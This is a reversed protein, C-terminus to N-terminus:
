NALIEDATETLLEDYREAPLWADDIDADSVEIHQAIIWADEISLTGSPTPLEATEFFEAAATKGRARLEEAIQRAGREKEFFEKRTELAKRESEATRSANGLIAEILESSRILRQQNLAILEL